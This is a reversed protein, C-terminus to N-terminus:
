CTVDGRWVETNDRKVKGDQGTQLKTQELGVASHTSNIEERTHITLYVHQQEGGAQGWELGHVALKQLPEAERRNGRVLFELLRLNLHGEALFPKLINYKRYFAETEKVVPIKQCSFPSPPLPSM